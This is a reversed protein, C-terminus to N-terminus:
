FHATFRAIQGETPHHVFAEVAQKNNVYGQKAHWADAPSPSRVYEVYVNDKAVIPKGTNIATLGPHDKELKQADLGHVNRIKHHFHHLYLYGFKTKGWLERAEYQMTIAVDKEKIGDGHAFGILNDHFVVYKRSRISVNENNNGFTVNPNNHFWSAITDALMWGSQFDHNSPCFIVEVPAMQTLLEIARIYCLKAKLFNSWWQGDTDQPTGGTTTRKTNDTHLIDNGIVFIIKSIGFVSAPKMLSLVGEEVRSVAIDSNYEKGTEAPLSLKGIHVDAPDIVLLNGDSRSYSIPTYKPAYKQMEIILSDRIQEYSLGKERRDIFVSVEDNKYWYYSADEVPIANEQCNRVLVNEPSDDLYNRIRRALNKHDSYGHERATARFSGTRNYTEVLEETPVRYDNSSM